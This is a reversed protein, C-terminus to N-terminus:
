GGAADCVPPVTPLHDALHQTYGDEPIATTGDTGALEGISFTVDKGIMADEYAAFDTDANGYAYDFRWGEAQLDAIAGAKYATTADGVVVSPALVLMTDDGGYPFGHEDLWRETVERATENTVGTTFTESRATLYLVRYGLDAYANVMASADDRELPDYNGDALQMAFEEDSLTLTEDIDTVIAPFEDTCAAGGSSDAPGMTSEGADTTAPAGTSGPATTGATTDTTASSTAGDDAGDDSSGGGCASALVCALSFGLWRPSRRLM